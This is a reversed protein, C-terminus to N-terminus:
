MVIEDEDLGKFKNSNEPDLVLTLVITDTAISWGDM